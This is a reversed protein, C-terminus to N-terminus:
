AVHIPMRVGACTEGAGQKARAEGSGLQRAESAARGARSSNGRDRSNRCVAAAVLCFFFIVVSWVSRGGFPWQGALYFLGFATAFTLASVGAKFWWTLEINM